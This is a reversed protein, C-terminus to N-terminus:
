LTFMQLFCMNKNREGKSFLCAPPRESGTIKSSVLSCFSWVQAFAPAAPSTLLRPLSTSASAPAAKSSCPPFGLNWPSKCAPDMRGSLSFPMIYQPKRRQGPRCCCQLSKLQQYGSSPSPFQTLLLCSSPIHTSPLPSTTLVCSRLLGWCLPPPVNQWVASSSGTEAGLPLTEWQQVCSKAIKILLITIELCSVLHISQLLDQGLHQGWLKAPWVM